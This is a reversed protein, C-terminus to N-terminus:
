RGAHRLVDKFDAFRGERREAESRLRKVVGTAHMHQLLSGFGSRTLHTSILDHESPELRGAVYDRLTVDSIPLGHLAGRLIAVPDEIAPMDYRGVMAASRRMNGVADRAAEIVASGIRFPAEFPLVLVDLTVYGAEGHPVIVRGKPVTRSEATRNLAISVGPFQVSLRRMTEATLHLVRIGGEGADVSARRTAGDVLAMEGLLAGTNLDVALSGDAKSVHVLGDLVIYVDQDAGGEAIFRKGAPITKVDGKLFLVDLISDPLGALPSKNKIADYNGNARGERIHQLAEQLPRTIKVPLDDVDVALILSPVTTTVNANRAEGLLSAEGFIGNPRSTIIEGDHSVIAEGDVLVYIMKDSQGQALLQHGADVYKLEGYKLLSERLTDDLASLLPMHALVGKAYDAENGQHYSPVAASLDIFGKHGAEWKPVGAADAAGKAIHYVFIQSTDVGRAQAAEILEKTSTPDTHIPPIGAEILGAIPVKRGRAGTVYDRHRTVTYARQMSMVPSEGNPGPRVHQWIAAPDAFTDGTFFAIPDSHLDPSTHIDFGITPVTHFGYEFRFHLGLIETFDQPTVPVFNWQTIGENKGGVGLTYQEQLMDRITQTTYVKVQPCRRLLKIVADGYHDTHGHTLIVGDIMELPFGHAIMQEVTTSNPDVLVARGGNTVMLGSTEENAVFGHGTGFAYLGPRGEILIKRRVSQLEPDRAAEADRGNVANPLPYDALDVVGLSRGNDIVEYRMGGDLKRVLINGSPTKYEGTDDLHVIHRLADSPPSGGFGRTLEALMDPVGRAGAPYEAAVSRSLAESRPGEYSLDLFRHIAAATEANPAVLTFTTGKTVFFMYQLFDVGLFHEVYDSDVVYTLPIMHPLKTVLEDKPIGFGGQGAFAGFADKNTWMPVGLQVWGESTKVQVGGRSPAQILDAAVKPTGINLGAARLQEGLVGAVDGLFGTPLVARRNFRRSLGPDTVQKLAQAAAAPDPQAAAVTAVPVTSQDSSAPVPSGQDTPPIVPSGGGPKTPDVAM